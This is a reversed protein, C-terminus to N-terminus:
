PLYRFQNDRLALEMLDEIRWYMRPPLAVKASQLCPRMCQMSLLGAWIVKSGDVQDVSDARATATPVLVAKNTLESQGLQPM